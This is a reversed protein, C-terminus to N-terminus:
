EKDRLREWVYCLIFDREADEIDTFEVGIIYPYSKDERRKAWAVRGQTKIMKNTERVYINVELLTNQEINERVPFCIGGASINKCVTNILSGDQGLVKYDISLFGDLRPYKRREIM